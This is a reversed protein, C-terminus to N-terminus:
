FSYATGSADPVFCFQIHSGRSSFRDGVVAQSGGRLGTRVILRRGNAHLTANEIDILPVTGDSDRCERDAYHLIADKVPLDGGDGPIDLPGFGPLRLRKFQERAVAQDADLLEALETRSMRRFRLSFVVRGRRPRFVMRSYHTNIHIDFMRAADASLTNQRFELLMRDEADLVDLSFLVRGDSSREERLVPRGGLEIIVGASGAYSGALRYLVKRDREIWPFRERILAPPPPNRKFERL